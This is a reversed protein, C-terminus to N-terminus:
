ACCEPGEVFCFSVVSGLVNPLGNQAGSLAPATHPWRAGAYLALNPRLFLAAWNPEIAPPRKWYSHFTVSKPMNRSAVTNCVPLVLRNSHAGNECGPGSSNPRLDGSEVGQHVDPPQHAGFLLRVTRLYLVNRAV